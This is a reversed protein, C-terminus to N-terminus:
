RKAGSPLIHNTYSSFERHISEAAQIHAESAEEKSDFRGLYYTTGNAMITSIWKRDKKRWYVGKYGSAARQGKRNWNNEAHTAERLNCWRNDSPDRNIHDIQNTPWAGTQYAWILRHVFLLRRNFGVIYREKLPSNPRSRTKQLHGAIDGAKAKGASQKWRLEGTEPDYSFYDHLLAPEIDPDKAKM